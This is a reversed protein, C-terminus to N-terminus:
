NASTTTSSRHRAWRLPRAAAVATTATAAAAAAANTTTNAAAAAIITTNNTDCHPHGSNVDKISTTGVYDRM